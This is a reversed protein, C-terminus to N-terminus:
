PIRWSIHGFGCNGASKTVNVSSIRLPFSWKKHLIYNQWRAFDMFVIVSFLDINVYDISLIKKICRSVVFLAVNNIKLKQTPYNVFHVTIINLHCLTARSFALKSNSISDNHLWKKINTKSVDCTDKRESFFM